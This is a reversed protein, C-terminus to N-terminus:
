HTKVNLSTSANCRCTSNAGIKEQTKSGYNMILHLWVLCHKAVHPHEVSGYSQSKSQSQAKHFQSSSCVVTGDNPEHNTCCDRFTVYQVDYNIYIYIHIYTHVYTPVYTHIYTHINTKTTHISYICTYVHVYKHAISRSILWYKCVCIKYM